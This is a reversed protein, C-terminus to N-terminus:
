LHFRTEQAARVSCYLERPHAHSGHESQLQNSIGALIRRLRSLELSSHWYYLGM